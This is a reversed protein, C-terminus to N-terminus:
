LAEWPGEHSAEHSDFHTARSLRPVSWIVMLLPSAKGSFSVLVIREVATRSPTSSKPNTKVRRFSGHSTGGGQRAADYKVPPLCYPLPFVVQLAEEEGVCEKEGARTVMKVATRAESGTTVTAPFTLSLRRPHPIAETTCSFPRALQAFKAMTSPVFLAGLEYSRVFLQSDNVQLDGWAARSMNSSTLLCWALEQGRYRCYTKIHPM